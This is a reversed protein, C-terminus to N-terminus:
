TAWENGLRQSSAQSVWKVWSPFSGPLSCRGACCHSVIRFPPSVVAKGAADGRGTSRSPMVAKARQRVFGLPPGDQRPGGSALTKGDASFAVAYVWFTHGKLTATEKGTAVDCLKVTNDYSASAVTKGDPSFAVSFLGERADADAARRGPRGFGPLGREGASPSLPIPLDTRRGRWADATSHGAASTLGSATLHRLRKTCPRLCRPVALAPPHQPRHSRLALVGLIWSVPGDAPVM